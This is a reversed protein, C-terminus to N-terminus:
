TKNAYLSIESVAKKVPDIRISIFNKSSIDLKGEHAISNRTKYFVSDSYKQKLLVSIFKQEIHLASCAKEFCEKSPLKMLAVDRKEVSFKTAKIAKLSIAEKKIDESIISSRMGNINEKYQQILSETSNEWETLIVKKRRM